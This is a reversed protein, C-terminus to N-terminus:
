LAVQLDLLLGLSAPVLDVCQCGPLYLLPVLLLFANWYSAYRGCCYGDAPPPTYRGLPTYRGPLTGAWPTGAQPYRIQPTYRTRPPTGPEPPTGTWTSGGQSCFSLCSYFCLGKAVENRVTFNWHVCLSVTFM